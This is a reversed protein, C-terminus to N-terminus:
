NYFKDFIRADFESCSQTFGLKTYYINRSFLDFESETIPLPQLYFNAKDEIVKSSIYSELKELIYSKTVDTLRPHYWVVYGGEYLKRLGDAYGMGNLKALYTDYNVQIRAGGWPAASYDGWVPPISTWNESYLKNDVGFSELLDAESTFFEEVEDISINGDLNYDPYLPLLADSYFSGSLLNANPMYEEHGLWETNAVCGAGLEVFSAQDRKANGEALTHAGTSPNLFSVFLFLGLLFVLAVRTLFKSLLNKNKTSYDKDALWHTKM